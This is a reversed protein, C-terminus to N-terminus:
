HFCLQCRRCTRANHWESLSIRFWLFFLVLVLVYLDVILSKEMEDAAVLTLFSGVVFVLNLLAKVYGGVNIQALGLLM